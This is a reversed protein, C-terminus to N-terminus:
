QADVACWSRSISCHILFVFAQGWPIYIGTPPPPRHHIPSVCLVCTFLFYSFQSFYELYLLVSNPTRSQPSPISTHSPSSGPSGEKSYLNYRLQARFSKIPGPMYLGQPFLMGSSSFILNGFAFTVQHGHSNSFSVHSSCLLFPYFPGFPLHSICPNSWSCSKYVM